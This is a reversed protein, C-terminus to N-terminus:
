AALWLHDHKETHEFAVPRSADDPTPPVLM